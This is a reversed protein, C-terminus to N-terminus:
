AQQRIFRHCGFPTLRCGYPQGFPSASAPAVWREGL